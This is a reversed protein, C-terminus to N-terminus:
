RCRIACHDREPNQSADAIKFQFGHFPCPAPNRGHSVLLNSKDSDNRSEGETGPMDRLGHENWSLNPETKLIAEVGVTIGAFAVVM